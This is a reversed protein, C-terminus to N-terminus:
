QPAVWGTSLEAQLNVTGLERGASRATVEFHQWGDLKTGPASARVRLFYRTHGAVTVPDVQRVHWEVPAAVSLSVEISQDLPNDIILPIVLEGGV